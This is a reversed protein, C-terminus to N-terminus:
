KTLLGKERLLKHLADRAEPTEFASDPIAMIQGTPFRILTMENLYYATDFEEWPTSSTWDSATKVDLSKDSFRLQREVEFYRRFKPLYIRLVSALFVVGLYVPFLEAAVRLSYDVRKTIFWVWLWFLIAAVLPISLVRWLRARVSAVLFKFRDIRFPLTAIETDV